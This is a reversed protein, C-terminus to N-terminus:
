SEFGPKLFEFPEFSVGHRLYANEATEKAYFPLTVTEEDEVGLIREVQFQGPPLIVRNEWRRQWQRVGCQCPGAGGGGAERRM